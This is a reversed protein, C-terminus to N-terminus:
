PNTSSHVLSGTRVLPIYIPLGDLRIQWPSFPNGPGAFKPVFQSFILCVLFHQDHLNYPFIPYPSQSPYNRCSFFPCALPSFNKRSPFLGALIPPYPLQGTITCFFVNFIASPFSGAWNRSQMASAGFCGKTVPLDICMLCGAGSQEVSNKWSAGVRSKLLKWRGTRIRCQVESDQLGPSHRRLSLLRM